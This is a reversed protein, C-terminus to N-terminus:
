ETIMQKISRWIDIFSKLPKVLAQQITKVLVDQHEFLDPAITVIISAVYMSILKAIGERDKPGRITREIEKSTKQLALAHKVFTHSDIM